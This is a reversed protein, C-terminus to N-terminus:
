ASVGKVYAHGPGTIIGTLSVALPSSTPSLVFTVPMAGPGSGAVGSLWGLEVRDGVLALAVAAATDQDLAFAFLQSPDGDPFCVRVRSGAPITVKCGPIGVRFPVSRVEAIRQDDVFLDLTGDPNQVVVDCGHVERYVLPAPAPAPSPSGAVPYLLEARAASGTVRYTVREIPHGLVTSGPRLTPAPPACDIRGDDGDDIWTEGIDATADPFTDVGIWITGDALVRWELGLLATFYDLAALATSEARMWRPLFRGALNAAVSDALTEGAATAIGQAVLLATVPQVGALHDRPPITKLLGGAGGVIVARTRGQWPKSRRVFGVFTEPEADNEGALTMTAAGSLEVDGAIELHATWAGRTPLTVDGTLVDVSGAATTLTVTSM